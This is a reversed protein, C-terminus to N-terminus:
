DPSAKQQRISERRLPRSLSVRGHWRLQERVPIAHQLSEFCRLRSNNASASKNPFDALIIIANRTPKRQPAPTTAKANRRVFSLSGGFTAKVATPAPPLVLM